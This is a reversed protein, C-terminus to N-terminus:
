YFKIFAAVLFAMVAFCLCVVFAIVLSGIIKGKAYPNRGLAQMGRAAVLGFGIAAALFGIGAAFGSAINKTAEPFRTSSNLLSHTFNSIFNAVSAVVAGLKGWIGAVYKASKGFKNVVEVPKSSGSVGGGSASLITKGPSSSVTAKGKWVGASFDGSIAPTLSLNTDNLQVPGVFSSNVEGNSNRATLTLEFEEGSTITDAGLEFELYGNKGAQVTITTSQSKTLHKSSQTAV